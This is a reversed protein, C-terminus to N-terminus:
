EEMTLMVAGVLRQAQAVDMDPRVSLVAAVAKHSQAVYDAGREKAWALAHVVASIAVAHEESDLMAKTCSSDM